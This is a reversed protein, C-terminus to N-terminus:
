IQWRLYSAYSCWQCHNEDLPSINLSVVSHSDVFWLTGDVITGKATAYHFWM